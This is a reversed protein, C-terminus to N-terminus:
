VGKQVMDQLDRYATRAPTGNAEMYEKTTLSGKEQIIQLGLLQRLSLDIAVAPAPAATTAPDTRFIVIFEHQEVFNPDPLRMERMEHFMFRIGSRPSESLYDLAASNAIGA